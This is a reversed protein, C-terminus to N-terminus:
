SGFNSLANPLHELLTVFLSDGIKHKAAQATMSLLYAGVSEILNDPLNKSGNKPNCNKNIDDFYKGVKPIEKPNIKGHETRIVKPRGRGGPAAFGGRVNFSDKKSNIM